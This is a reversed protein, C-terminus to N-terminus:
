EVKNHGTEVGVGAGNSAPGTGINRTGDGTNFWQKNGGSNSKQKVFTNVSAYSHQDVKLTRKNSVHVGNKSFAGTDEITVTTDDPCGCGEPLNVVNNGTKVEVVATNTASGTNISSGGDGTNFAQTNGGSNSSQVVATNVKSVNSQEIKTYDSNNVSAHNWSFAGTEAVSVDAALAAAPSFSAALLGATALGTALKTKLNLM